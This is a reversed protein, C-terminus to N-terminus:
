DPGPLLRTLTGSQTLVAIFGNDQPGQNSSGRRGGIVIRADSTQEITECISLPRFGRVM